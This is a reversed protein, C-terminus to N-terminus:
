TPQGNSRRPQPENRVTTPIQRTIVVLLGFWGTLWAIFAAVHGFEWRPRLREYIAAFAESSTSPVESWQSNVPAVLAGWLVLSIGLASASAIALGFEPSRRLRVALASVAVAAAVQVAGGAIGYWAYLTSTVEAYFEAPYRMKIPLEMLHAAGPTLGLATLTLAVAVHARTMM